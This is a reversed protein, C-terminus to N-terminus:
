YDIRICQAIDEKQYAKAISIYKSKKGVSFHSNMFEPTRLFLADAFALQGKRNLCKRGYRYETIFDYFEFNHELLFACIEGFLPQDEYIELFSVEVEIGLVTRLTGGGRLIDLESGQTDLKIFDIDLSFEDLKRTTIKPKCIVEWRGADPFNKLFQLNPKYFSSCEAKKTYHFERTGSESGLAVNFVKRKTKTLEKYSRDDPEFLVIDIGHQLFLWRDEINFNAAGIDAILIKDM